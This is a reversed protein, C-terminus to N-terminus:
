TRTIQRSIKELEEENKLFFDTLLKNGNRKIQILLLYSNTIIVVKVALYTGYDCFLRTYRQTFLKKKKCLIISIGEPKKKISSFM